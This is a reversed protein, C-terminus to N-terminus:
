SASLKTKTFETKVQESVAKVKENESEVKQDLPIKKHIEANLGSVNLCLIKAVM